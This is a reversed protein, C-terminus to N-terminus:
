PTMCPGLPVIVAQYLVLLQRTKYIWESLRARRMKHLNRSVFTASVQGSFRISKAIVGEWFIGRDGPRCQSAVHHHNREKYWPGSHLHFM